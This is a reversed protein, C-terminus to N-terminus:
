SAGQLNACYERIEMTHEGGYSATLRVVKAPIGFQKAYAACINECMRKSESYSSRVAMPDIYGGDTEKISPMSYDTKGYVELSSTFVFGLSKKEQM